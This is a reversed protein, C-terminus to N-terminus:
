PEGPTAAVWYTGKERFVAFEQFFSSAQKTDSNQTGKGSLKSTKVPHFVL